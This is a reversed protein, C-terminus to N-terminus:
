PLLPRQSQIPRQTAVPTPFIKQLWVIGLGRSCRDIRYANTAFLRLSFAAGTGLRCVINQRPSTPKPKYVFSTAQKPPHAMLSEEDEKATGDGRSVLVLHIYTYGDEASWDDSIPLVFCHHCNEFAISSPFLGFGLRLGRDWPLLPCM